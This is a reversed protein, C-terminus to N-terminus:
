YQLERAFLRHFTAEVRADLINLRTPQYPWREGYQRYLSQMQRKVATKNLEKAQRDIQASLPADIMRAICKKIELPGAEVTVKIKVAKM